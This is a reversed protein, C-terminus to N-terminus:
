QEEQSAAARTPTQSFADVLRRQLDLVDNAIAPESRAIRSLRGIYARGETPKPNKPMRAIWRAFKPSALLRGAAYQGALVKAMLPLGGLGTAGTLLNGVNSGSNSHNAYKTAEKSGRAVIALDNLAARGEDGFLTRKASEGIDNWHTLFTSLSFAEGTEDQSGKTARGLGSILSARVAGREQPPLSEMFRAFRRNNGAMAGKLSQVIQEGSKPNNANGLIPEIAEDITQLRNRWYRDATRYARAAGDLGQQQLGAVIDDAAADVVRNAIRELNTNRLGNTSFQDRLATRMNRLGRVTNPESLADRLEGLKALGESGGPTESLRAIEDDLIRLANPTEVKAQGAASEAAHYLGNGRTSTRAIFSKAGRRATEGAAEPNLIVGFSSAVRDRVAKASDLTRNAGSVISSAGGITGAIMSTARRTKAGGVDAPFPVINQREMAALVEQGDTPPTPRGASAMARSGGYNILGGTAGGLAAGGAAGILRDGIDGDTAGLGYVGGLAAGEQAGRVGAARAGALVAAERGAGARLMATAAGKGAGAVGSPILLGAALSGTLRAWFNNEEDHDRIARNYDLAENWSDGNLVVDSAALLEDDLGITAPVGRALAKITDGIGSQGRADTIDPTPREIAGFIGAVGREREAFAKQLDENGDWHTQGYQDAIVNLAALDAGNNFATQIAAIYKDDQEKYPSMEEDGFVLKDGAQVSFGAKKLAQEIQPSASGAGIKAAEILLGLRKKKDKIAAESDGLQPFYSRRFGELQERNYAAGTGLTLGADLIDLQANEVRQRDAGTLFNAATDGAISRITETFAGPSQGAEGVENLISLGGALRTALTATKRESEQAKPDGGGAAAKNIASQPQELQAILNPDDVPILDDEM